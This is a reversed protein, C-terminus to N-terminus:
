TKDNDYVVLLAGDAVTVEAAKGPLFENSVGIPYIDRMTYNNLPYKLNKLTVSATKGLSFVSLYGTKDPEFSLTKNQVATLTEKAGVLYGRRGTEALMKLTQINALTHRISGGTGGYIYFTRCGKEIGFLVAAYLDTVDKEAKLEVTHPFDPKAGLSDFDGILLDVRIGASTLLRYGGDAAIVLDDPQPVFCLGSDPIEGAGAIYCVTEKKRSM